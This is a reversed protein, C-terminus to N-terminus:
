EHQCYKRRIDMLRWLNMEHGIAYKKYTFKHLPFNICFHGGDEM